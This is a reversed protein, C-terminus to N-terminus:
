GIIADTALTVKLQESEFWENLLDTGSGTLLRFIDSWNRKIKAGHKWGFKGYESLDALTLRAPNPPVMAMLPELLAAIEELFAEYKPYNAADGTSFKSIEDHVLKKDPGLMLYRGDPFPTFSSPSRPIMEFGRSALQLDRVIEPRFLSNVYACRSIKFGPWLEETVAAGGVVQRAEFVATRLGAKALYAAAVLGNHGAGIVIADYAGPTNESM